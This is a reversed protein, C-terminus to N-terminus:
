QDYVEKEVCVASFVLRDDQEVSCCVIERYRM